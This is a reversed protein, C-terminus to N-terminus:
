ACQTGDHSKLYGFDPSFYEGVMESAGEGKTYPEPSSDKHVWGSQRRDNSYFISEDNFWPVVRDEGCALILPEAKGDKDWKQMRDWYLSWTPLFVNQRYNVVDDREHGDFYLGRHKKIWRYDLKKMWHKATALSIEKKLGWKNKIEPDKLYEIIHAAKVYKGKSQLFLAIEQKLEEDADILSINWGGYPTEPVQYDTIFKKARNRLMESAYKALKSLAQSAEISAEMWRGKFKSKDSTFLNLFTQIETLVWFAIASQKYCVAKGERRPRLLNKIVELAEKAKIETPPKRLEWSTGVGRQPAQRFKPGSQPVLQANIDLDCSDSDTFESDSNHDDPISDFTETPPKEFDLDVVEAETFVIGELEEQISFILEVANKFEASYIKRVYEHM